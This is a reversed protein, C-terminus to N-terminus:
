APVADAWLEPMAAAAHLQPLFRGIVRGMDEPALHVLRWSLRLCGAADVSGWVGAAFSLRWPPLAMGLRPCAAALQAAIARRAQTQLWGQVSDKIQTEDAQPPLPLHLTEGCLAISDRGGDLCLLIDRGLFPFRVGDQWRAPLPLKSALPKGALKGTLKGAIARRGQRLAPEIRPRAARSLFLDLQPKM